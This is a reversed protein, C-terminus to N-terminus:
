SSVREGDDRGERKTEQKITQLSDGTDERGSGDGLNHRGRSRLRSHLEHLHSLTLGEDHVHRPRGDHGGEGEGEGEHDPAAGAELRCTSRPQAVKYFSLVTCRAGSEREKSALPHLSPLFAAM